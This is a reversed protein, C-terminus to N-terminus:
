FLLWPSPLKSKLSTLSDEDIRAKRTKEHVNHLQVDEWLYHM